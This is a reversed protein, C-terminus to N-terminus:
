LYKILAAHVEDYIGRSIPVSDQNAMTIETRTIKRVFRLNVLFSRHVKYFSDDLQESVKTLSIRVYYKRNNTNVYIYRKDAEIYLIDALLVKERAEGTDLLISRERYSLNAVARDLVPYLKETTAPKILYHLASVDYGDSFYEYFGTVFILQIAHNDKRLEKALEVGSMKGMEIDLILIDYSRDESYEFLFAEASLFTKIEVLHRSKKVWGAVLESMYEIQKSEDDCIAIRLKM